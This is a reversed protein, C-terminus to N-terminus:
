AEGSEEPEAEPAETQRGQKGQGAAGEERRSISSRAVKIETKKAIELLVYDEKLQTVRGFIGGATMVTDGKKLARVLADHQKRQKQNPRILLFYFVIVFLAFIGITAFGSGAGAQALLFAIVSNM